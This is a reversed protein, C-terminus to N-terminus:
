DTKCKVKFIDGQGGAGIKELSNKYYDDKLPKLSELLIETPIEM